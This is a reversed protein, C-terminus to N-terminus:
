KAINYKYVNSIRPPVFVSNSLNETGNKHMSYKLFDNVTISFTLMHPIIVQLLIRERFCPYSKKKKKATCLDSSLAKCKCPLPDAQAMGGARKATTIKTKSKAFAWWSWLGGIKLKGCLLLHCALVVM